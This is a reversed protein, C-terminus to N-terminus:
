VIVYINIQHKLNNEKHNSKCSHFFIIFLIYPRSGFHFREPSIQYLRQPPRPSPTPSTSSSLLIISYPHLPSPSPFCSLYHEDIPIAIHLLQSTFFKGIMSCHLTLYNEERRM